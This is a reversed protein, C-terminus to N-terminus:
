AKRRCQRALSELVVTAALRRYAAIAELAGPGDNRRSGVRRDVPWARLLGDLAPSAPTAVTSRRNHTLGAVIDRSPGYPLRPWYKSGIPLSGV